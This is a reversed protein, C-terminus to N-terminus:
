NNGHGFVYTGAELGLLETQIHMKLVSYLVKIGLAKQDQANQVFVFLLIICPELTEFAPM